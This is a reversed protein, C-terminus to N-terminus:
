LSCSSNTDACIYMSCMTAMGQWPAVANLHNHLWHSQMCVATPRALTSHSIALLQEHAAQKTQKHVCRFQRIGAQVQRIANACFPVSSLVKWASNLGMMVLTMSTNLGPAMMICHPPYCAPRETRRRLLLLLELAACSLNGPCCHELKYLM